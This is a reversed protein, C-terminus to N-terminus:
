KSGGALKAALSARFADDSDLNLADAKVPQAGPKAGYQAPVNGEASEVLGDFRASVYDESKGSVDKGAATLADVRIQHDSKGKTDYEPKLFKSAKQLLSHRAEVRADLADSTLQSQAKALQEKATDREAEAKDARKNATSLASAADAQLKGIHKESGFEYEAGDIVIMKMSPSEKNDLRLKAEAGARAQGEPLLAVHNIRINRQICDYKEGTVPDTGPTMDLECSYGCSIQTDTAREIADLAAADSVILTTRVWENPSADLRVRAEPPADTVHGVQHDRANTPAVGEPPHGITVPASAFSALSEPSFVEDVPRYERLGQEPYLQVGSRSVTAPLRVAGAGTRQFKGLKSVDTRRVIKV